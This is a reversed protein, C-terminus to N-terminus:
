LINQGSIFTVNCNNPSSSRTTPTVNGVDHSYSTKSLSFFCATTPRPARKLTGSKMLTPSIM